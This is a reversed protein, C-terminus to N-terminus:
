IRRKIEEHFSRALGLLLPLFSRPSPVNYDFVVFVKQLKRRLNSTFM